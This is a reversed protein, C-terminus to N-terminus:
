IRLFDKIERMIIHRMTDNKWYFLLCLLISFLPVHVLNMWYVMLYNPYENLKYPELNTIKFILIFLIGSGILFCTFVTLNTLHQKEIAKLFHKKSEESYSLKPLIVQRQGKYVFIKINVFVHILLTTIKIILIVTNFTIPKMHDLSPNTGSFIYFNINQKGPQYVFVFQSIYSFGVIWIKIFLTWFDDHFSAPDNLWFISM